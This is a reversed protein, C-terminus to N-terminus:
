TQNLSRLTGPRPRSPSQLSLIAPSDLADVGGGAYHPSVISATPPLPPIRPSKPTHPLRSLDMKPVVVKRHSAVGGGGGHLSRGSTTHPRYEDGEGMGGEGGGEEMDEETSYGMDDGDRYDEDDDYELRDVHYTHGGSRDPTTVTMTMATAIAEAEEKAMLGVKAMGLPLSCDVIRKPREKASLIAMLRKERWHLKKRAAKELETGLMGKFRGTLDRANLTM